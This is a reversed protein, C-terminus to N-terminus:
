PVTAAYGLNRLAQAIVAHGSTNPHFGDALLGKAGPDEDGNVGNFAAYVRAYLVKNDTATTAIYANVEDLHQKLVVFDNGADGLVTDANKDISVFPNYIDMTRLLTPRARRLAMFEGLIGDWNGKFASVADKLCREPDTSPGCTRDKYRTRAANIDNGGADWTIVESFFVSVRYVFNGRLAKVLDGSMWGPIGLPALAVNVSLDNELIREYRPVYGLGPLALAGFALSDGLATYHLQQIAASSVNTSWLSWSFVLTLFAAILAVPRSPLRFLNNVLKM